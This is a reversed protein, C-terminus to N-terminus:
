NNKLSDEDRGRRVIKYYAMRERKEVIVPKFRSYFLNEEFFREFLNGKILFLV